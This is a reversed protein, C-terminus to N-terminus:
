FILDKTTDIGIKITDPDRETEGSILNRSEAADFDSL